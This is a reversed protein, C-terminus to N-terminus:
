SPMIILYRVAGASLLIRPDTPHAELVFVEDQHGQLYLSLGHVDSCKSMVIDALKVWYLLGCVSPIPGCLKVDTSSSLGETDCWTEM